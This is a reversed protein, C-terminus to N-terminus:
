RKKKTQLPVDIDFQGSKMPLEVSMEYTRFIPAGDSNEGAAIGDLGQVRIVYAGGLVGLSDRTTFQGNRIMAVCGFGPNGKAEDPSFQIMGAPVPQGDYTVAGTLHITTDSAGCGAALGAALFLASFLWVAGSRGSRGLPVAVELCASM